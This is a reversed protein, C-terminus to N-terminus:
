CLVDLFPLNLVICSLWCSQNLHNAALHPYITMAIRKKCKTLQLDNTQNARILTTSLFGVLACGFVNSPLPFYSQLCETVTVFCNESVDRRFYHLNTLYEGVQSM